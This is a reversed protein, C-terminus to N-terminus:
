LYPVSVYSMAPTSRQLNSTVDPSHALKDVPLSRRGLMGSHLDHAKYRSCSINCYTVFAGSYGKYHGQDRATVKFM